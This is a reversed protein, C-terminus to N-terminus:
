VKSIKYKKILSLIAKAMISQVRSKNYRYAPRMFPRPSMGHEAIHRAIAFAIKWLKMRYLGKAAAQRSISWSKKISTKKIGLSKAHRRVWPILAEPPPFHPPTGYEVWKGYIVDTGVKVRSWKETTTHISSRLRGTDVPCLKKAQREILLGGKELAKQIIDQVEEPIKDWQSKKTEVVVTVKVM